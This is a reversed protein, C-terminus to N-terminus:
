DNTNLLAAVQQLHERMEEKKHPWSNFVRASPHHTSVIPLASLQLIEKKASQAKQGVLVIVELRPLLLLLEQLYPLSQRIDERNVARIRTGDGVYWPVINWLLSDERGIKAEQLLGCLNRASPDPNNRSIFQSGVAKPGPAELLFLAKAEVGGDCPDFCPLEKDGNEAKIKELYAVLPAIHPQSLLAVRRRKEEEFRLANPENQNIM